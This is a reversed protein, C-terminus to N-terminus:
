GGRANSDAGNAILWRVGEVSEANVAAHLLTCGEGITFLYIHGAAPAPAPFRERTMRLNAGESENRVAEPLRAIDGIMALMFPDTSTGREILFKAVEPRSTALHEAATSAHDIDIADIAAGRELLLAAIETTRSFHLPLQGDGGRAHVLAPDADLMCRLDDIGGLRAAAHPTLTAGRELLYAAMEDNCGDLVGFPGNAWDSRQDIDAGHELLADVMARDGRNVAHMLPTAGFGDESTRGVLSSDARLMVRVADADGRNICEVFNKLAANAM